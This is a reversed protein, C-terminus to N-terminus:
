GYRERARWVRGEEVKGGGRSGMWGEMWVEIGDAGGKWVEDVQRWGGAWTGHMCGVKGGYVLGLGRGGGM